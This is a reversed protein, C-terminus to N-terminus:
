HCGGGCTSCGSEAPQILPKLSIGKGENEESSLILFGGFDDILTKEIIFTVENIVETIDEERAESISINFAPGSCGYGALNIRVNYDEVKNEDLFEKFEKYADENMTVKQM